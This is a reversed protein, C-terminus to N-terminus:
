LWGEKRYWKLTDRIGDRADPYVLSYGTKKLKENSYTVDLGLYAVSDAEFKSSIGTLQALPRLIRAVNLLLYKFPPLYIPPAPIFYNGNERAMFQLYEFLSMKSDDNLHYIEGKSEEILALHLAARCVDEVHVFPLCGSLNIPAISVKLRAVDLLMQGGGYVGRPGYVTTPRISSFPFGSTRNMEMVLYEQQWKSKLYNNPPAPAMDETIPLMDPDVPGYVGGAGWLIFHKLSKEERLLHCFDRTGQVNVRDLVHWPASYNFVAALHFVYDVGKVLPKLTEPRTMDSPQFTVGLKKLVGPFRGIKPDDKQYAAALDTAIINHGARQLVEIMHSGIFGCAGTVLSLPKTM